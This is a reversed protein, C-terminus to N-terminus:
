QVAITKKPNAAFHTLPIKSTYFKLILAFQVLRELIKTMNGILAECNYNVFDINNLLHINIIQQSTQIKNLFFCCSTAQQKL